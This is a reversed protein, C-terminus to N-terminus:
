VGNYDIACSTVIVPSHSLVPYDAAHMSFIAYERRLGSGYQFLNEAFASIRGSM